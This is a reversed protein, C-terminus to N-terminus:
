TQGRLSITKTQWIRGLYPVHWREGGRALVSPRLQQSNCAQVSASSCRNQVQDLGLHDKTLKLAQQSDHLSTPGTEIKPQIPRRRGAIALITESSSAGWTAGRGVPAAGDAARAATVRDTIARAAFRASEGTDVTDVAMEVAAAVTDAAALLLM